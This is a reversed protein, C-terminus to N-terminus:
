ESELKRVTAQEEPSADQMCDHLCEDCFPIAEHYAVYTAPLGCVTQNGDRHAYVRECTKM